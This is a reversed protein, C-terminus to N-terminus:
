RRLWNLFRRFLSQDTKQRAPASKTPVGENRYMYPIPKVGLLIDIERNTLKEPEALSQDEYLISSNIKDALDADIEFDSLEVTLKREIRDSIVKDTPGWIRGGRKTRNYNRKLKRLHRLEFTNRSSGGSPIGLRGKEEEIIRILDNLVVNAIFIRPISNSNSQIYETVFKEIDKRLHQPAYELELESYRDETDDKIDSISNNLVASFLVYLHENKHSNYYSAFSPIQVKRILNNASDLATQISNQWKMWSGGEAKGNTLAEVSGFIAANLTNTCWAIADHDGEQALELVNNIGTNSLEVGRYYLVANPKIIKQIVMGRYEPREFSDIQANILNRVDNSKFGAAWSRLRERNGRDTFLVNCLPYNVTLLEYLDDATTITKDYGAIAFAGSYTYDYGLNEDAKEGLLERRFDVAIKEGTLWRQIQDNNWRQGYPQLLGLILRVVNKDKITAIEKSLSDEGVGNLFASSADIIIKQQESPQLKTEQVEKQLPVRGLQYELFIMGVAWWDVDPAVRNAEFSKVDQYPPTGEKNGSTDDGNEVRSLGFDIIRITNSAKDYILNGPKLDRHIINYTHLFDVSESLLRVFTKFDITRM